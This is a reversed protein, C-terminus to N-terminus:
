MQVALYSPSFIEVSMTVKLASWCQSCAIAWRSVDVSVVSLPFKSEGIQWRGPQRKAPDCNKGAYLLVRNPGKREMPKGTSSILRCQSYEVKPSSKTLTQKFPCECSVGCPCVYEIVQSTWSLHIPSWGLFRTIKKLVDTLGGPIHLSFKILPM